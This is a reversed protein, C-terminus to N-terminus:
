AVDLSDHFGHTLEYGRGARESVREFVRVVEM